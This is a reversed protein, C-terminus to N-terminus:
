TYSVLTLRVNYDVNFLLKCMVATSSICKGGLPWECYQAQIIQGVVKLGGDHSACHKTAKIIKKKLIKSTEPLPILAKLSMVFPLILLFSPSKENRPAESVPYFCM